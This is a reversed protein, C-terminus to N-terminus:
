PHKAQERGLPIADHVAVLGVQLERRLLFAEFRSVAPGGYPDTPSALELEPVQACSLARGIPETCRSCGRRSLACGSNNSRSLRGAMPCCSRADSGTIRITVTLICGQCVM